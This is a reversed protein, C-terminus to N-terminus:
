SHRPIVYDKPRWQQPRLCTDPLCWNWSLGTWKFYTWRLDLWKYFFGSMPFSHCAPSKCIQNRQRGEFCILAKELLKLKFFHRKTFYDTLWRICKTQRLKLIIKWISLFLVKNTVYLFQNLKGNRKQKWKLISLPRAMQQCNELVFTEM